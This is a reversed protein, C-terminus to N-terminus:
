TYISRSFIEIYVTVKKDFRNVFVVSILRVM